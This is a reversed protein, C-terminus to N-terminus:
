QVFLACIAFNPLGSALHSLCGRKWRGGRVPRSVKTDDPEGSVTEDVDTHERKRCPRGAHINDHCELCVILTKRRRAIMQRKWDPLPRRGKTTLNALKRIHHAEILGLEAKVRGCMECEQKIMRDLLDSRMTWIRYPQDRSITVKQGRRLSLGGFTAVLPKKEPGRNVVVRVVRMEETITNVTTKYKRAMATSSTKHKNALTNLLSTELAWFVKRLAALNHAMLYYNRLGMWEAQYKRVIAYDSETMLEPRHGPKGNRMHKGAHSDVVDAPVRLQILRNVSRRKRNDLRDDSHSTCLEHGLFCATDTQAHTIKTKEMSMELKLTDRLFDRLKGKIEEAEAKPGTFGLLFDDAYRVYRLRRYDPDEPMKSSLTHLKKRLENEEQWNGQARARRMKRQISRYAPNPKRIGGRNYKPLLEDEVFKDLKDLYINSLIPSIVGGQPTGSYTAHYAWDEVYGAKLMYSLLRLFRNDHIKEALISLLIEHDINDFCGKIDGEIFWTIATWYQKVDHLATHCSRNPRYGHSRDSFQAEYYAELIHRMVEQVLKDSWTPMGLPRQGGSKKPIHVRRVPIWRYQEHRISEIILRIKELNMGDITEGTMGPTLAGKNNRLREYAMTYLHPNYLLRYVDELPLGHKGREHVIELVTEARQM